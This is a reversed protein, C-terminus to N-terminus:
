LDTAAARRDYGGAGPRRAFFAEGEHWLFLAWSLSEDFVALDDSGPYWLEDWYKVFMKWTTVAAETSDWSLFVRRKFPVGRQYLWKRVRRGDAAGDDGALPTSTVEAFFGRTFPQERYWPVTVELLRGASAADLPEIQALHAPPAVRYKPDTLRWRLSSQEMPIPTVDLV